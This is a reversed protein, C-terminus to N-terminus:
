KLEPLPLKIFASWQADIRELPPLGRHMYLAYRVRLPKDKTIEIPKDLTLCAGMWGDGRVHFPSPHNPNAPHDMLTIGEIM